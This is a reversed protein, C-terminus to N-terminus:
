TSATSTPWSRGCSVGGPGPQEGKLRATLTRLRILELLTHEIYLRPWASACRDPRDVRGGAARVADLLDLATPGM